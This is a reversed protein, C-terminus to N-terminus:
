ILKEVSVSFVVTWHMKQLHGYIHSRRYNFKLISYVESAQSMVKTCQEQIANQSLTVKIMETKISIIIILSTWRTISTPWLMPSHRLMLLHSSLASGLVRIESGNSCDNWEALIGPRDWASQKDELPRNQVFTPILATCIQNFSYVSQTQNIWLVCENEQSSWETSWFYEM